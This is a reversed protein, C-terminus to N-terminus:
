WFLYIINLNVQRTSEVRLKIQKRILLFKWVVMIFYIPHLSIISMLFSGLIIPFNTFVILKLALGTDVSENHQEKIVYRFGFLFSLDVFVIVFSNRLLFVGYHFYSHFMSIERGSIHLSFIRILLTLIFTTIFYALFLNSRKIKQESIKILHSSNISCTFFKTILQSNSM